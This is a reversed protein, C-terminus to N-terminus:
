PQASDLRAALMRELSYHRTKIFASLVQNKRAMKIKHRLIREPNALTSINWAPGDELLAYRLSSDHTTLRAIELGDEMGEYATTHLEGDVEVQLVGLDNQECIPDFRLRETGTGYVFRAQWLACTSWPVQYAPGAAYHKRVKPTVIDNHLQYGAAILQPNNTILQALEHTHHATLQVEPSFTLLHYARKEARLAELAVTFATARTPRADRLYHVKGRPPAPHDTIVYYAAILESDLSRLVRLLHAHAQDDGQFRTALAIQPTM